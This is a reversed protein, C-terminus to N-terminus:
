WLKEENNRQINFTKRVTLLTQQPFYYKYPKIKIIFMKKEMSKICFLSFNKNDDTKKYRKYWSDYHTTQNTSYLISAVSQKDIKKKAM